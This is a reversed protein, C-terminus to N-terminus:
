KELLCALDRESVYRLTFHRTWFYDSITPGVLRHLSIINPTFNMGMETM